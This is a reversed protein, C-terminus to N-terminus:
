SAGRRAALVVLSPTLGDEVWSAARERILEIREPLFGAEEASGERLMVM